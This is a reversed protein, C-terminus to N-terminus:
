KFLDAVDFHVSFLILPEPADEPQPRAHDPHLEAVRSELQELEQCRRIDPRDGHRGVAVIEPELVESDDDAVHIRRPLMQSFVMYAQDRWPRLRDRLRVRRCSDPGQLKAIRVPMVKLQQPKGLALAISMPVPPTDIEEHANVVRGHRDAAGIVAELEVTVQEPQLDSAITEVHTVFLLMQVAQAPGSDAHGSQLGEIAWGSDLKQLILQGGGASGHRRIHARVVEDVPLYRQHHLLRFRYRLPQTKTGVREHRHVQHAQRVVPQAKFLAKKDAVRVAVDHLDDFPLSSPLAPSNVVLESRLVSLAIIFLRIKSLRGRPAMSSAAIDVAAFSTLGAAPSRWSPFAVNAPPQKQHM